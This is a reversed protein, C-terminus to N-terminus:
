LAPYTSRGIWRYTCGFRGFTARQECTEVLGQTRLRFVASHVGAVTCNASLQGVIRAYLELATLPKEATRLAEAVAPAIVPKRGGRREHPRKTPSLGQPNTVELPPSVDVRDDRWKGGHWAIEFEPDM